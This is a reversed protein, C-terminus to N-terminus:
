LSSKKSPIMAIFTVTMNTRVVSKRLFTNKHGVKKNSLYKNNTHAIIQGVGGVDLHDVAPQDETEEFGEHVGQHLGEYVSESLSWDVLGLCPALILSVPLNIEALDEHLDDIRHKEEDKDKDEPQNTEDVVGNKLIWSFIDKKTNLQVNVSM